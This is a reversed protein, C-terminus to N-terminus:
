CLCLLSESEWGKMKKPKQDGWMHSFWRVLVCIGLSACSARGIKMIRAKLVRFCDRISAVGMMIVIVAKFSIATVSSINIVRAKEARGTGSSINIVKEARGTGSSINIVREARRTRTAHPMKWSCLFSSAWNPTMMNPIWSWHEPWYAVRAPMGGYCIASSFGTTLLLKWTPLTWTWVGACLMWTCHSIASPAHMHLQTCCAYGDTRASENYFLTCSSLAKEPRDIIMCEKMCEYMWVNMCEYMGEYMWVNMCEKMCECMWVNMCEYMGEPRDVIMCLMCACWCLVPMGRIRRRQGTLTEYIITFFMHTGANCILVFGIFCVCLKSTLVLPVHKPYHLIHTYTHTHASTMLNMHRPHFGCM